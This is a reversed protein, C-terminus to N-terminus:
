ELEYTLCWFCNGYFINDKSFGTIHKSFIKLLDEFSYYNKLILYERGDKLKRRKYTNNDGKKIVLEGGISPIYVNDAIFIESKKQLVRHFNTLFCDIKERPVHSFWFNALGGNFSANKFSLKFADEIHFSVPCLYQKEKAIELVQQVKDTAIISQATESLLRTWYGTGCAIELVKKNVLTEKMLEELKRLEEQRTPDDRLYIEEYEEARNKYYNQM